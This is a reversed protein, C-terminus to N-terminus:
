PLTEEPVDPDDAPCRGRLVQQEHMATVDDVVWQPAGVAPLRGIALEFVEAAARALVRDSLGHRAGSTWRGAAPACAARARDITDAHSLLAVLVAVPLAWRRGPQADIYRVELHGHPRVPPFLTTVHYDLDATTPPEPLAGRVWDAFTVGRPVVWPGPRRVALVPTDLVRRAWAETPDAGTVDAAPPPATRAPDASQWCAWRSSKWGTRRGHLTPSNAFAALLVPGLAHLVAWRAGVDGAEGADLCVQVAATSCMASRGFPGRRDFSEEMAQYRPLQLIRRPPRVGDTARPGPHLGAAALREHLTATDASVTQLLTALDPSPPSALEIQGGPEVTVTSGSPLPEAPSSQSLSSPAHPGLAAALAASDPAWRPEPPRHVLWELEVGFLRPPGHKFCVSGVHTEADACDRLVSPGPDPANAQPGSGQHPIAVMAAKESM